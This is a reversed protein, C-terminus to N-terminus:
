VIIDWLRKIYINTWMQKQQFNSHSREGTILNMSLVVGNRAILGKVMLAMM